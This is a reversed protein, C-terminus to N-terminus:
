QSLARQLGPTHDFGPDIGAPLTQQEGTKSNTHIYTGDNPAQEAVELGLREIDSQSLSFKKCRCNYGNSPSHTIWWPDDAPLILGDWSKHLPRFNEAGSHRYQWFPREAKTEPDRMQIERGANYAQRINTEYILASRWDRGGQYGWGYKEVIADFQERFQSLTLQQTIAQDVASRLDDLLDAQMAGAVTFATDHAAKTLEDWAATSINLKDRFYDEAQQFTVRVGDVPSVDVIEFRGALEAATIARALVAVLESENVTIESLRALVQDLTTLGATLALLQAIAENILPQTAKGLQQAYDDVVDHDPDFASLGDDALEADDNGSPMQPSGGGDDEPGTDDDTDDDSEPQAGTQRGQGPPQLLAPPTEKEEWEGGYTDIIYALSPKFGMDFIVKDRSARETMDEPEGTERWVQPYAAGPFNWDILWRVWSDNASGNILDADAKVLDARVKQQLTENGLRGPTVELSSTQGLVRKAIMADMYSVLANYDLGGARTAEILDIEMGEPTIIGSDIQIATLTALLKAQDAQPTGQPFKGWATPSAYKESHLLWFKVGNRKFQVPWYLWHALGLGYPEDDHDAGACFVWFKNPPLKEGDPKETTKLRLSFDPAFGFRARDRVPLRDIVVHRGDRAYIAEAVAFGYFMGFHAKGTVNDWKLADLQEKLFDAARKDQRREGGPVVQWESAIVALRRQELASATQTDSLVQRYIDYNYGGEYTLVVDQPPLLSLPDVYGRTIDRGDQTTAIEGRSPGSKRSFATMFRSLISAM